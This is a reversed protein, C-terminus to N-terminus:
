TSANCMPCKSHSSDEFLREVCRRCVLHQCPFVKPVSDGYKELCIPCSTLEVEADTETVKVVPTSDTSTAMVISQRIWLLKNQKSFRFRNKCVSNNKSIRTTSLLTTISETAATTGKYVIEMKQEELMALSVLSPAPKCIFDM